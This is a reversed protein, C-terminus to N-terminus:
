GKPSNGCRGWGSLKNRCCIAVGKGFVALCIERGFAFFRATGGLASSRVNSRTTAVPTRLNMKFSAVILSKKTARREAARFFTTGGCGSEASTSERITFSDICFRFFRRFLYPCVNQM